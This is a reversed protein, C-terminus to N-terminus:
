TTLYEDLSKVSDEFYQKQLNFFYEDYKKKFYYFLNLGEDDTIEIKLALFYIFPKKYKIIEDKIKRERDIYLEKNIGIYSTSNIRINIKYVDKNGEFSYNNGDALYLADVAKKFAIMLKEKM